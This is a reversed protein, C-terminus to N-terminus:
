AKIKVIDAVLSRLEEVRGYNKGRGCEKLDAEAKELHAIIIDMIDIAMNIVETM